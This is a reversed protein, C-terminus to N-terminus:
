PFRVKRSTGNFKFKGLHRGAQSMAKGFDRIAKEPPAKISTRGFTRIAEDRQQKNSVFEGLYQQRFNKLPHEKRLREIYNPEFFSKDKWLKKPQAKPPPEKGLAIEYRNM